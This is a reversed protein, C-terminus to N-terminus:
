ARTASRGPSPTTASANSRGAFVAAYDRAVDAWSRPRIRPVAERAVRLHEDYRAHLDELKAALDAPSDPDFWIVRGDMRQEVMERLVPIDSSVVPIGRHMAEMMPFSGGGEALTPMVVAWAGDLVAYYTPDDVYGLAVVGEERISETGAGSLVLPLKRGWAAHAALLVSHNKHPATNAPTFLYRRGAVPSPGPPPAHHDGSLPVVHTPATHGMLRRLTAVTAHSSTVVQAGSALWSRITEREDAAWEPPWERPWERPYDVIILDHLSAVVRGALEWPVRHRHLWPFWVVDGGELAEPRVHLHFTPRPLRLLRNLKRAFPVGRPVQRPSVPPVDVYRAEPGIAARYRALAVDHSVVELEFGLARFARAMEGAFRVGGGPNAVYDVLRIRTM